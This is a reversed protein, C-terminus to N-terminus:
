RGEETEHEGVVCVEPELWVGTREAVRARVAAILAEIDAARCGPQSVIFNAHRESVAAGGRALGKCGSHEILRGAHDGPPNRFVSGCSRQGIPQTRARHRLLERVRQECAVREDGVLELEAAVFWEDAPRQVHRYGYQYEGAERWRLRGDRTVVQVRRVLPWTEGGHAGANMALAGGVTGPIGALFEGGSLAARAAVRALKPCAVGAEAHFGTEGQPELRDLAGATCVVAGRIGGDRVLLNSGLGLWFVPTTMPLSAIFVALDDADAPEYFLEAPGGVNWWVHGALPENRRLRGRLAPASAPYEHMALM